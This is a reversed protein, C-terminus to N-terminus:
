SLCESFTEHYSSQFHPWQLTCLTKRLNSRTVKVWCLGNQVKNSIENLCVNQGLKMIISSLILGRSRECPKELIQGLSSTKLWVHGM